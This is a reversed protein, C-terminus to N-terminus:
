SEALINGDEAIVANGAFVVDTTSEGFGASAYLYVSRTRASQQAILQRLYANKGVLENSASLNVLLNAGQLAQKSSPPIPVWLDKCIEVGFSFEKNTFILDIGFPVEQGCLHITDVTADRGSTFWRAEYFESYNPLYIKAAVGLIRGQLCAVAANYVKNGVAVPMGVIQILPLTATRILLEAMCREAEELLFPQGFLDGCTYGTLALEPYAVLSVGRSAAERSLAEIREMNTQCDSVKVVPIASAVKLFGYNM